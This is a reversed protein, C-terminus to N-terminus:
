ATYGGDAVMVAGTVYSSADSALFVALPGIEDARGCRAMPIRAELVPRLEPAEDFWSRIPDTLFVGPAIVNVRVGFPAWDVALARSFAILGAKAAEYARGQLGRTTTLGAISAVNIITGSRRHVMNGGLLRCCQFPGTLNLDFVRQWDNVSLHETAARVYRGGVNNVLVDVPGLSSLVQECLCQAKDPDSLDAAVTDVRGGLHTLESHAVALAEAKRGVLILDAGAEALARAIAHGLGRSGGTVLARKGDLRFRDLVSM